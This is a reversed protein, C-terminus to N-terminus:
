ELSATANKLEFVISSVDAGNNYYAVFPLEVFVGSPGSVVPAQPQYILEPVTITLKENSAAGTGSGKTFTIVLASETHGLAKNYLTLDTFLAKLTGSVKVMGEPLSYRTGTGDLVYISGDLNNEISLDVETAIALTSGGETIVAEFGDFPTWGNDTASSDVSSTSITETAGMIGIVFDIMGEPKLTIKGSNIKCGTYKFYQPTDLDTFQKEITLGVPLDGVKFVHTYPNGGTTTVTGLLHKFIRGLGPELELTIDGSVEKVGRVPTSPNRTNRIVKSEVINRNLRLTESVFPLLWADPTTPSSKFTDETDYILRAKIGKAQTAM